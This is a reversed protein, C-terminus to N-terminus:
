DGNARDYNDTEFSPKEDSRNPSNFIIKRAITNLTLTFIEDGIRRRIGSIHCDRRKKWIEDFPGIVKDKGGFLM